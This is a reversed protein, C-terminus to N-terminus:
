PCSRPRSPRRRASTGPASGFSRFGSAGNKRKGPKASVGSRSAHSAALSTPTKPTSRQAESQILIVGSSSNFSTISRSSLFPWLPMSRICSLWGQVAAITGISSSAGSPRPSCPQECPRAATGPAARGHRRRGAPGGLGLPHDPRQLGPELLRRSLAQGVTRDRHLRRGAFLGHGVTAGGAYKQGFRREPAQM